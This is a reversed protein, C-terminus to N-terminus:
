PRGRRRSDPFPRQTTLVSTFGARVDHKPTDPLGRAANSDSLPSLRPSLATPYRCSQRTTVPRRRSRPGRATVRANEEESGRTQFAGRAAPTPPHPLQAVLPGPQSGPEPGSGPLGRRARACVARRGKGWPRPQSEQARGAWPEACAHKKGREERGMAVGGRTNTESGQKNNAKPSADEKRTRAKPVRLLYRRAAVFNLM